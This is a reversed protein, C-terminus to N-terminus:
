EVLVVKFDPLYSIYYTTGKVNLELSVEDPKEMLNNVKIEPEENKKFPVLLTIFKSTKSKPGTSAYIHWQDPEGHEPAAGPFGKIQKFSLNGSQLFKVKLRANGQEINIIKNKKDIKMESLSHIWWEYTVPKPAELDDYLVFVGPRIHVVHRHWKELLGRYTNSADGVTYDYIENSEFKLIKGKAAHDRYNQGIGGDITICNAAKTTKNWESEHKSGWWPYYGSAVALAEGFAELTFANEDPHGHSIPGYPDSHFLFHVDQDANGLNTHLSVLGIGPFYRAQPLDSPCKGKIRDDKLLIGLVNKGPGSGTFEAYWRAYPDNLLTSLQYMLQGRDILEYEPSTRSPPQSKVDGFPSMKAYPPNSYIIYYPTNKYFEKKILDLGTAKKIAQICHLGVTMYLNYYTPGEHWGGDDRGWAPYLNWYVTLVYNLWEKAEEWEHAFCLAGEALFGAMRAPHSQYNFSQYKQSYKLHHYVYSLRSKMVKEVKTREEPTFLHYTWDYTSMGKYIMWMAAENNASYSTSGEPDWGFFHLIRRKAEEGYKEDGTLLYVLGFNEMMNMSYRSYPITEDQYKAGVKINPTKLYELIEKTSPVEAILAEGLHEDCEKIIIDAVDKLDGFKARYRYAGLEDKLIFLRPHSKPISNMVFNIGPFIWTKADEPVVFRRAKSYFINGPSLTPYTDYDNIGKEMGYRWFWEDEGGEVGYRWFWQGPELAEELAYTNIDIGRRTIVEKKFNSDRSIQLCYIFDGEIPEIPVWVFPPPNLKVTSGDAPSYPLQWDHWRGKLEPEVDIKSKIDESSWNTKNSEQGNLCQLSLSLVIFIFISGPKLKMKFAKRTM